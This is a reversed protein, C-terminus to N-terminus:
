NRGHGGLGLLLFSLITSEGRQVYGDIDEIERLLGRADRWCFSCETKGANQESLDSYTEKRDMNTSQQSIHVPSLWRCLSSRRAPALSRQLRYPGQGHSSRLVILDAWDM